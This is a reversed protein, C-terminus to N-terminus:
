LLGVLVRLIIWSFTASLFNTLTRNGDDIWSKAFALGATEAEQRTAFRRGITFRKTVEKADERHTVFILPEWGVPYLLEWATAHISHGEYNRYM